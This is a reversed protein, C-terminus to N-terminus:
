DGESSRRQIHQVVAATDLLIRRSLSEVHGIDKLTSNLDATLALWDNTITELRKIKELRKTVSSNIQPQIELM